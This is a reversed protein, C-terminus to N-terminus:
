IHILSLVQTAGHWEQQRSSRHNQYALLASCIQSFVAQLLEVLLASILAALFGGWMPPNITGQLLSRVFLLAMQATISAVACLTLVLWSIALRRRRTTSNFVPVLPANAGPLVSKPEIGVFADNEPAYFGRGLIDSKFGARERGAETMPPAGWQARLTARRRLWAQLFATTWIVLLLTYLAQWVNEAGGYESETFIFLVVGAIAPAWLWLSLTRLFAFYLAHEGGFYNFLRTAPPAALGLMSATSWGHELAAREAPQHPPWMERVVGCRHLAALHLGAGGADMPAELISLVLRTRQAASFFRPPAALQFLDHARRRYPAFAHGGGELESAGKAEDLAALQSALRDAANKKGADALAREAMLRAEIDAKLQVPMGMREAERALRSLRAGLMLYRAGDAAAVHRVELGVAECRSHLAAATPRVGAAEAAATSTDVDSAAGLAIALDTALEEGEEAGEMDAAFADNFRAEAEAADVSSRTYADGGAAGASSANSQRDSEGTGPRRRRRGATRENIKDTVGAAESGARRRRARGGELQEGNADEEPQAGSTARRRRSGGLEAASTAAGLAEVVRQHRAYDAVTKGRRDKIQADAGSELLLRVLAAASDWQGDNEVVAPVVALHLATAGRVDVQNVNTRGGQGNSQLLIRALEVESTQACVSSPTSGRKRASVILGSCEGVACFLEGARM